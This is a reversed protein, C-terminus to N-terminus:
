IANGHRLRRRLVLVQSGGRCTSSQAPFSLTVSPLLQASVSKPKRFPVLNFIPGKTQAVVIGQLAAEALAINPDDRPAADIGYAVSLSVQGIM